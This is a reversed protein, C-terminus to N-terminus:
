NVKEFYFVIPKETEEIQGFMKAIRYNASYENLRRVQAQLEKRFFELSHMSKWKNCVRCAPNLNDEHNVDVETLHALFEPIRFGSEISKAYEYQPIIHDVQMDKLHIEAGCYACRGNYKSHIKERQLKTFAM